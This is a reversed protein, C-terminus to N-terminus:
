RGLKECRWESSTESADVECFAEASNEKRMEHFAAEASGFHRKVYDPDFATGRDVYRQAIRHVAEGFGAKLLVLYVGYGSLQFDAVLTRLRDTNSVSKTFVFSEGSAVFSEVVRSLIQEAEHQVCLAGLGGAYEPLIRRAEDSDLFPLGREMAFRRAWTTKGAGPPGMVLTVTRSRDGAGTRYSNAKRVLHDIAEGIGSRVRGDLVVRREVWWRVSDYGPDDATARFARAAAAARQMVAHALIQEPEPHEQSILAKLSELENDEQVV